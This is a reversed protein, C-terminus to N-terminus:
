EPPNRGSTTYQATLAQAIIAMELDSAGAEHLTHEFSWNVARHLFERSSQPKSAGRSPSDLTLPLALSTAICLLRGPQM